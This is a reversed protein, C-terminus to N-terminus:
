FVSMTVLNRARLRFPRETPSQVKPNKIGNKRYEGEVGRGMVHILLFIMFAEGEGPELPEAVVGRGVM